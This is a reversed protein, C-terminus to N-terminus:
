GAADLRAYTVDSFVEDAFISSVTSDGSFRLNGDEDFGYSVTNKTEKDTVSSFTLSGDGASYAYYMYRDLALADSEYRITMIGSDYFRVTESYSFEDAYYPLVREETVWEGILAKDTEFASYSEKEYEPAKAQAFVYDQAPEERGTQEDTYGPFTVILRASGFLKSGTIKYELEGAGMDILRKGDKESLKYEGEEVGGDYYTRYVGDGYRGPKEFTYYVREYEEREDMATEPIEPNSVMEWEGRVSVPLLFACAAACGAILVIAAAATIAIGKKSITKKMM